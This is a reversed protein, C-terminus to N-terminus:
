LTFSFSLAFSLSLSLSLSYFASLLTIYQPGASVSDFGTSFLTFSLIFTVSLSYLSFHGRQLLPPVLACLFLSLPLFLPSLPLSPSLSLSVCSHVMSKGPNMSACLDCVCVCVCVCM